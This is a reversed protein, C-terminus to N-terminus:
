RKEGATRGRQELEDREGLYAERQIVEVVYGGEPDGRSDRRHGVPSLDVEDSAGRDGSTQAPSASPTWHKVDM